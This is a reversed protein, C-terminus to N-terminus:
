AYLCVFPASARVRARVAGFHSLLVSFSVASLRLTSQGDLDCCHRGQAGAVNGSLVSHILLSYFVTVNALTAVGREKCDHEDGTEALAYKDTLDSTATAAGSLTPTSSM